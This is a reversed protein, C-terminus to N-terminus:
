LLWHFSIMFQLVLPYYLCLFRLTIQSCFDLLYVFHDLSIICYKYIEKKGREGRNYILIFTCLSKLVAQAQAPLNSYLVTISSPHEGCRYCRYVPLLHKHWAM